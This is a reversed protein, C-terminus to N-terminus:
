LRVNVQSVLDSLIWPTAKSQKFNEGSVQSSPGHLASYSGSIGPLSIKGKREHLALREYRKHGVDERNLNESTM